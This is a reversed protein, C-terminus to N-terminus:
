QTPLFAARFTREIANSCRQMKEAATEKQRSHVKLPYRNEEVKIAGWPLLNKQTWCFELNVLHNHLQTYQFNVTCFICGNALSINSFHVKKNRIHTKRSLLINPSKIIKKQTIVMYIANLKKMGRKRLKRM